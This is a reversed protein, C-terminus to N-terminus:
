YIKQKVWYFNDYLFENKLIGKRTVTELFYGNKELVRMSAKNYEFVEAVIRNIIFNSFVYETMQRVAETALGQGWFPEAIWYALEVNMRYIDSKLMIGIGGAIEGNSLIAFNQVPSLEAQAAIFHQADELTYPHPIQDRMNNWIKINNFLLTLQEADQEHWPRISVPTITMM